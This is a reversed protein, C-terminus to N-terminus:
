IANTVEVAGTRQYLSPTISISYGRGNDAGWEYFNRRPLGCTALFMRIIGGHTIVAADHIDESMMDRVIENIGLVIRKAFEEVAEGGPPSNRNGAIWESYDETSKLQEMSKGEFDGFDYETINPVVFVEKEPYIIKATQRCRLMPSSYVKEVKPYEIESKLMELASLGEPTVPLETRGIYQGKVNGETMGHRIFHIRYTQM